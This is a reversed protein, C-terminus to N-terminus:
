SPPPLPGVDRGGTWQAPRPKWTPVLLNASTASSASPRTPGRTPLQRPWTPACSGASRADGGVPVRGDLRLDLRQVVGEIRIRSRTDLKSGAM